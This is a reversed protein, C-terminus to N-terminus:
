TLYAAFKFPLAMTATNYTHWLLSHYALSVVSFLSPLFSVSCSFFVAPPLCTMSVSFSSAVNTLWHFQLSIDNNCYQLAYWLLVIHSLCSLFSSPLFSVSCSLFAAPPLCSMSHSVSHLLYTIYTTFKFPFAMTVTKCFMGLDAQSFFFLYVIFFWLINQANYNLCSLTNLAFMSHYQILCLWVPLILISCGLLTIYTSRLLVILWFINYFSITQIKISIVRIHPSSFM